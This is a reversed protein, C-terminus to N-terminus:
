VNIGASSTSIFATTRVPSFAARSLGSASYLILIELLYVALLHPTTQTERRRGLV